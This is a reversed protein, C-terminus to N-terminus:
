QAAGILALSPTRMYRFSTIMGAFRQNLFSIENVEVIPIFSPEKEILSQVEVMLRARATADEETRAQALLKTVAPNNFRSYNYPLDPLFSFPISEAPERLGNYSTSLMLDADGRAAENYTAETYKIAQLPKIEITLGIRRAQLQVLQAIRSVTVDGAPTILQLPRDGIGLTEVVQKSQNIAAETGFTEGEQLYPLYAAEYIDNGAPDWNSPNIQTYFPRAAGRFVLRVIASRDISMSLARRLRVDKLPGDPNVVSMVVYIDAPGYLLKGASSKRLSPITQAPVEYAGDIEGTQLASALTTSDSFFKLTITKARPAFETDWYDPNAELEISTGTNWKRLKYPGSCMIGRESTGFKDGAEEAHRKQWIMGGIGGLEKAVLADPQSLAITVTYRDDATITKISAFFVGIATSPARTHDLSFKVDESTMESGDWFRIGKKLKIRITVPDLREVDAVGPVPIGDEGARMLSDCMQALAFTASFYPGNPPDLVSPEGYPLGWNLTDIPGVAEGYSTQLQVQSAATGPEGSTAGSCGPIAVLGAIVGLLACLRRLAPLSHRM